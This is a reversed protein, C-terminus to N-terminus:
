VIFINSLGITYLIFTSFYGLKVYIQLFFFRDNQKIEIFYHIITYM